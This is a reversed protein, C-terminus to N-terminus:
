FHVRKGRIVLYAIGLDVPALYKTIFELSGHFEIPVTRDAAPCLMMIALFMHNPKKWPKHSVWTGSYESFLQGERCSGGLNEVLVLIYM